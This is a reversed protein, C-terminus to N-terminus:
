FNETFWTAAGVIQTDAKQPLCGDCNCGFINCKGVGCYPTPKSCDPCRHAVENNGTCNKITVYYCCRKFMSDFPTAAQVANSSEAPSWFGQLGLILLACILFIFTPRM